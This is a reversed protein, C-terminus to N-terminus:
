QAIAAFSEFDAATNIDQGPMTFAKQMQIRMGLSLARLQELCEFEELVSMPAKVFKQLSAHRYAYLGIHRYAKPLSQPDKRHYPIPSRSFYLAQEQENMVLKVINPNHWDSTSEIPWYLSAWDNQPHHLMSAVQQILEPPMQPEDGQLNVIKADASLGLLTAAEAVRDTGSQHSADTMVVDAGFSEALEYIQMDDTAITISAPHALQAQQYVFELITKGQVKLLLKGPLRSSNLRAPIIVHFDQSM